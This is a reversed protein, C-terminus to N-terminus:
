YFRHSMHLPIWESNEDRRNMYYFAKAEQTSLHRLANEWANYGYVQRANSQIQQIKKEDHNSELFMYDYKMQPANEMSAADTAYLINIGNEQITFGHCPVDHPCLFSRIIKGKFKFRTEDGIIKDLDVM